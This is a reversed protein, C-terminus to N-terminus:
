GDIEVDTLYRQMAEFATAAEAPNQSKAAMELSKAIVSLEDFGYGGATGKTKHSLKAIFDFDKRTLADKLPGLDRKRSELYTPAIDRLEEPIRVIIKPM